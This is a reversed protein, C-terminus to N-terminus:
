IDKVYVIACVYFMSFLIIFVINDTDIYFVLNILAGLLNLLWLLDNKKM